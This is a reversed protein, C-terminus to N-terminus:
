STKFQGPLVPFVAPGLFGPLTRSELLELALFRGQSDTRKESPPDSDTVPLQLVELQTGEKVRKSSLVEGGLLVTRGTYSYPTELIQPFSVSSDIQPKLDTPVVPPGSSCGGFTLVAVVMGRTVTQHTIHM